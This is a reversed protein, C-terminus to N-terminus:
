ATSAKTSISRKIAELLEELDLSKGLMVVLADYISIKNRGNLESIHKCIRVDEGARKYVLPEANALRAKEFDTTPPKLAMVDRAISSPSTLRSVTEHTSKSRVKKTPLDELVMGEREKSRKCESARRELYSIWEYVSSVTYPHNEDAIGDIVSTFRERVCDGKEQKTKKNQPNGGRLGVHRKFFEKYKPNTEMYFYKAIAFLTTEPVKDLVKDEIEVGSLACVRMLRLTDEIWSREWGTFNSICDTDPLNAGSKIGYSSLIPSPYARKWTAGILGNGYDTLVQKLHVFTRRFDQNFAPNNLALRMKRAQDETVAHILAPVTFSSSNNKLLTKLRLGCDIVGYRGNEKKYVQAVYANFSSDFLQMRKDDNPVDELDIDGLRLKTSLDGFNTTHYTKM